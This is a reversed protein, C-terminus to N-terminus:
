ERACTLSTVGGLLKTAKEILYKSAQVACQRQAVTSAAAKDRMDCYDIIIPPSAGLTLKFFLFIDGVAASGM